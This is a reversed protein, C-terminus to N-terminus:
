TRPTRSGSALPLTGAKQRLFSDAKRLDGSLVKVVALYMEPNRRLVNLFEEAPLVTLSCKELATVDVEAVEGAVIARLAFVKGPGATGLTLTKGEAPVTIEVKGSNLIILQEPRVGQRVLKSGQAVTTAKALKSLELRIDSSLSSYLENTPDFTSTM